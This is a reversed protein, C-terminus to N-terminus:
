HDSSSEIRSSQMINTLQGAHDAPKSHNSRIDLQAPRPHSTHAPAAQRLEGAQGAGGGGEGARPEGGPQGRDASITYLNDSIQSSALAPSVWSGSETDLRDSTDLTTNSLQPVARRRSGRRYGALLAPGPGPQLCYHPPPAIASVTTVVALGAQLFVPGLSVRGTPSLLYHPGPRTTLCTSPVLVHRPDLVLATCAVGGEGAVLGAVLGPRPLPHVAGEGTESWQRRRRKEKRRQKMKEKKKKRKNNSLARQGRM